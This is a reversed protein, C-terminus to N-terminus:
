TPHRMLQQIQQHKLHLQSVVNLMAPTYLPAVGWRDSNPFLRGATYTTIEIAFSLQLGSRTYELYLSETYNNQQERRDAMM